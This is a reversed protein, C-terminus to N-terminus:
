FHVGGRLLNNLEAIEDDYIDYGMPNFHIEGIETYGKVTSLSLNKRCVGGKLEVNPVTINKPTEKILIIQKDVSLETFNGNAGKYSKLHEVNNEIITTASKTLMGVGASASIPNETFAGMGINIASGMLSIANLINNRAIDQQNTFGIGIKVAINTEKSEILYSNGNGDDVYIYLAFKGTRVDISIYGNVTNGYIKLPNLEIMEFYPIYLKIRTYPSFDLFNNFQRTVTFSFLQISTGYIDSMFHKCPYETFQHGGMYVYDTNITGWKSLDVPLFFIDTIYEAVNMFINDTNTPSVVGGTLFDNLFNEMNSINSSDFLMPYSSKTMAQYLTYSKTDRSM